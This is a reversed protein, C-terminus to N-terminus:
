HLGHSRSKARIRRLLEERDPLYKTIPIVPKFTLGYLMGFLRYVVPMNKVVLLEVQYGIIARKVGIIDTFPITRSWFQFTQLQISDSSIEIDSTLNLFFITLAIEFPIALFDWVSLNSEQGSSQIWVMIKVVLIITAILAGIATIIALGLTSIQTSTPYKYKFNRKYREMRHDEESNEL